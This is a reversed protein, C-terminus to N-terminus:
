GLEDNDAVNDENWGNNLALKQAAQEIMEETVTPRKM